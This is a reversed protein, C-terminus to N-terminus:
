SSALAEHAHGKRKGLAAVLVGRGMLDLTYDRKMEPTTKPQGERAKTDVSSSEAMVLPSLMFRIPTIQMKIKPHPEKANTKRPAFFAVEPRFIPTALVVIV